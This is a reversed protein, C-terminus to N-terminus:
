RDDRRRYPDLAQLEGPAEEHGGGHRLLQFRQPIGLDQYVQQVDRAAELPRREIGNADDKGNEWIFWRPAILWRQVEGITGCIPAYWSSLQGGVADV